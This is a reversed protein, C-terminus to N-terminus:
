DIKQIGKVFRNGGRCGYQHDRLGYQHDLHQQPARSISLLFLIGIISMSGKKDFKWTISKSLYPDWIIGM